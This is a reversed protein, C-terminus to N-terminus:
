AGSRSRVRQQRRQTLPRRDDHESRSLEVRMVPWDSFLTHCRNFNGLLSGFTSQGKHALVPIHATFIILQLTSESARLRMTSATQIVADCGVKAGLEPHVTAKQGLGVAASTDAERPIKVRLSLRRWHLIGQVLHPACQSIQLVSLSARRAQRECCEVLM